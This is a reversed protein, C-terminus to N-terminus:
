RGYELEELFERPTRVRALTRGEGDAIRRDPLDLLHRDGSVLRSATNFATLSVLYDDDPDDIVGGAAREPPDDAVEATERLWAM